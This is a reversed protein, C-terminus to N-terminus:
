TQRLISLWRDHGSQAKDLTEYVEVVWGDALTKTYAVTEYPHKRGEALAVLNIATRILTGNLTAFQAVFENM